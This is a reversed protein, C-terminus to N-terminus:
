CAYRAYNAESNGQCVQCARAYAVLLLKRDRVKQLLLHLQAFGVFLDMFRVM